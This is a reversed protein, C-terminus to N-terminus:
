VELYALNSYFNCNLHSLSTCLFLNLEMKNLFILFFIEYDIAKQIKKNDVQLSYTQGEAETDFM